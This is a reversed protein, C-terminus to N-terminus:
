FDDFDSFERAWGDAVPQGQLNDNLGYQSGALLQSHQQIKVVEIKPIIYEKKKMEIGGQYSIDLENVKVEDENTV